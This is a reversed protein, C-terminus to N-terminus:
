LVNVHAIENNELLVLLNRAIQKQEFGGIFAALTVDLHAAQRRISTV